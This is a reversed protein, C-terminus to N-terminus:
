KMISGAAIGALGLATFVGGSINLVSRNIDKSGTSAPKNQTTFDVYESQVEVKIVALVPADEEVVVGQLEIYYVGVEEYTIILEGTIPDVKVYEPDGKTVTINSTNPPLLTAAFTNMTGAKIVVVDNETYHFMTTSTLVFSAFQNETGDNREYRIIVTLTIPIDITGSVVGSTADVSISGWAVDVGSSSVLQGNVIPNGKYTIRELTYRTSHVEELTPDFFQPSVYLTDNTFIDIPSYTPKFEANYDVPGYTTSFAYTVTIRSLEEILPNGFDPTLEYTGHVSINTPADEPVTVSMIGTTDDISIWSVAEAISVDKVTGKSFVKAYLVKLPMLVTDTGRQIPEARNATATDDDVVYYLLHDHAFVGPQSYRLTVPFTRQTIVVQPFAGDSVTVVGTDPDIDLLYNNSPFLRNDYVTEFRDDAIETIEPVGSPIIQPHNRRIYLSYFRKYPEVMTTRVVDPYVVEDVVAFTTPDRRVTFSHSKYSGNRINNASRVEFTVSDDPLSSFWEFSSTVIHVVGGSDITVVPNKTVRSVDYFVILFEATPSVLLPSITMVDQTVDLTLTLDSIDYRSHPFNSSPHFTWTATDFAAVYEPLLISGDTTGTYVPKVRQISGAYLGETESRAGTITGDQSMSYGPIYADMAEQGIIEVGDSRIVKPVFIAVDRITSPVGNLAAPLGEYIQYRVYENLGHFTLTSRYYVPLTTSKTRSNIELVAYTTGPAITIILAGVIDTATLGPNRFNHIDVIEHDRNYLIYASTDERETVIGMFQHDKTTHFLPALDSNVHITFTTSLLTDNYLYDVTASFSKGRVADFKTNLALSTGRSDSIIYVLGEIGLSNTVKTLTVGIPSRDPGVGGAYVPITISTSQYWQYLVRTSFVLYDGEPVDYTHTLTVNEFSSLRGLNFSMSDKAGITTKVVTSNAATFYNNETPYTLSNTSADYIHPKGTADENYASQGSVLYATTYSTKKITPSTITSDDMRPPRTPCLIVDNATTGRLGLANSVTNAQVGPALRLAPRLRHVMDHCKRDITPRIAQDIAFYAIDIDTTKRGSGPDVASLMMTVRNFGPNAVRSDSLLITREGVGNDVGGSTHHIYNLGPTLRFRVLQWRGYSDAPLLPEYRNRLHALGDFAEGNEGKMRIKWTRSEMNLFISLTVKDNYWLQIFTVNQQTNASTSGFRFIFSIDISISSGPAVADDPTDATLEIMDLNSAGHGFNISGYYDNPLRHGDDASYVEVGENRAKYATPHTNVIGANMRFMKMTWSRPSPYLNVPFPGVPSGLKVLATTSYGDLRLWDYNGLKYPHTPEKYFGDAVTASRAIQRHVPRNSVNPKNYTKWYSGMVLLVVGISLLLISLLLVLNVFDM